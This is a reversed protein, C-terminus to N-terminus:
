PSKLSGYPKLVHQLCTELGLPTGANKHIPEQAQASPWGVKPCIKRKRGSKAEPNPTAQLTSAHM